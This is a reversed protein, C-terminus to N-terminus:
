TFDGKIEKSSFCPESKLLYLTKAQSYTFFRRKRPSGVLLWRSGPPSGGVPYSGLPNGM